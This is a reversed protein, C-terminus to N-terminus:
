RAKAKVAEYYDLRLQNCKIDCDGCSKDHNSFNPKCYRYCKFIITETMVYYLCM